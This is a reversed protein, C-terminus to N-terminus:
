AARQAAREAPKLKAGDVSRQLEIKGALGDAPLMFDFGQYGSGYGAALVDARYLNALVRGILRNGRLIDLSVPEDPASIDQAWGFCREPGKRDVDGRLEGSVRPEAIGARAAVRRQIAHLQFGSDLRPLCMV